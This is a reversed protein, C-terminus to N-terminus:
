YFRDNACRALLHITAQPLDRTVPINEFDGHLSSLDLPHVTGKAGVKKSITLRDWDVPLRDLGENIRRQELVSWPVSASDLRSWDIEDWAVTTWDLGRAELTDHADTIRPVRSLDHGPPATEYKNKM